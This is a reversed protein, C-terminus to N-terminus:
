KKNIRPPIITDTRNTIVNANQIHERSATIIRVHKNEYMQDHMILPVIFGTLTTYAVPFINQDNDKIQTIKISTVHSIERGSYKYQQDTFKRINDYPFNYFFDFPEIYCLICYLDDSQFTYKIELKFISIIGAEEYFERMCREFTTGGIKEMHDDTISGGMSTWTQKSTNNGRQLNQLHRSHVLAIYIENEFKTYVYVTGNKIDYNSPHLTGNNNILKFYICEGVKCTTFQHKYDVNQNIFWGIPDDTSIIPNKIIDYEEEGSLEIRGLIEQSERISSQNYIPIVTPSEFYFKNAYFKQSM